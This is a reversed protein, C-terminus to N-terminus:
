EKTLGCAVFCQWYERIKRELVNTSTCIRRVRLAQSYPISQEFPTRFTSVDLPSVPAYRNNEPSREHKHKKDKMVKTDLFNVSTSSIEHTFKISPVARNLYNVSANLSDSDGKWILFIDNIFPIWDIIHNYWQTVYIFRDELRGMYVNAYNPAARTGM